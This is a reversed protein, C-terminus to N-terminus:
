RSMEDYLAIGAAVFLGVISLPLAAVLIAKGGLTTSQPRRITEVTLIFPAVTIGIFNTLLSEM